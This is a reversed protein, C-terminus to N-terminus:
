NGMIHYGADVHIVEGTIGSSVESALFLATNSVEDLTINRRLPSKQEHHDLVGTFGGIGRAALTNLPGASIANVRIGQAGFDYALYRVSAELAAKAVGMVNYNPVVKEAGYYSLTVISATPSFFPLIVRSLAVLSYASVELALSFDERATQLYPQELAEKPAYALSHVFADIPPLNKLTETLGQLDEPNVVDLPVLALPAHELSEVLKEANAKTRENQYGLLIRGGAEDVAKAISWAISRKNAVNFIAVTKNKLLM